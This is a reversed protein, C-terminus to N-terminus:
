LKPENEFVRRVGAMNGETADGAATESAATQRGCMMGLGHQVALQGKICRRKLVINSM